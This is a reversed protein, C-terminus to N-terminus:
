VKWGGSRGPRAVAFSVKGGLRRAGGIALGVKGSDPPGLGRGRAHIRGNEIQRSVIGAGEGLIEEIDQRVEFGLFRGDPGLGGYQRPVVRSSATVIRDGVTQREANRAGIDESKSGELDNLRASQDHDHVLHIVRVALYVRIPALKGGIRLGRPQAIRYPM